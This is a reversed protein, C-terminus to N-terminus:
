KRAQEMKRQVVDSLQDITVYELPNISDVVYKLENVEQRLEEVSKKLNIIESSDRRTPVGHELPASIESNASFETKLEEKLADKLKAMDPAKGGGAALTVEFEKMKKNHSVLTRGVVQVNNEMIKLRQAILKLKADLSAMSASM